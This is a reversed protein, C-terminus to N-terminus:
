KEEQFSDKKEFLFQTYKEFQLNIFTLDNELM